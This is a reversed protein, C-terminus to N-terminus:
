QQLSNYSRRNNGACTYQAPRAAVIQYVKGPLQPKQGQETLFPPPASRRQRRNKTVVTEVDRGWSGGERSFIQEKQRRRPLRSMKDTRRDLVLCVNALSAVRVAKSSTMMSTNLTLKTAATPPVLSQSTQHAAIDAATEKVERRRAHHRGQKEATNWCKVKVKRGGYDRAFSDSGRRHRNRWCGNRGM